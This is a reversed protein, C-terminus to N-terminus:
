EWLRRLFFQNCKACYEYNATAQELPYENFRDSFFGYQFYVTSLATECNPCSCSFLGLMAGIHVGFTPRDIRVSNRETENFRVPVRVDKTYHGLPDGIFGKVELSSVVLEMTDGTQLSWIIM